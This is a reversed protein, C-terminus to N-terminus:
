EPGTGEAAEAETERDDLARVYDRMGRKDGVQLMTLMKAVIERERARLQPHLEFVMMMSRLTGAAYGYTGSERVTGFLRQPGVTVGDAFRYDPPSTQLGHRAVLESFPTDREHTSVVVGFVFIRTRVRGSNVDIDTQSYGLLGNFGCLVLVVVAALLGARAKRKTM